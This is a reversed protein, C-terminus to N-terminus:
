SADVTKKNIERARIQAAIEPVSLVSEPLPESWVGSLLHVSACVPRELVRVGRDGTKPNHTESRFETITCLCTDTCAYKHTLNLSKTRKTKNRLSVM